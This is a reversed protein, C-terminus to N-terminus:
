TFASRRLGLISKSVGPSSLSLQGQHNTIYSSPKGTRLPLWGDLYYSTIVQYRRFRSDFERGKSWSDLTRVTVGGLWAGLIPANTNQIHTHTRPPPQTLNWVPRPSFGQRTVCKAVGHVTKSTYQAVLRDMVPLSGNAIRSSYSLRASNNCRLGSWHWSRLFSGVSSITVLMSDHPREIGDICIRWRLPDSWITHEGLYGVSASTKVEASPRPTIAMRGDYYVTLPM